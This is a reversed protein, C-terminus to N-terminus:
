LCTEQGDLWSNFLISCGLMDLSWPRTRWRWRGHHRVGPVPRPETQLWLFRPPKNADSVLWLYGFIWRPIDTLTWYTYLPIPHYRYSNRPQKLEPSKLKWGDKMFDSTGSSRNGHFPFGLLFPFALTRPKEKRPWPKSTAMQQQPPFWVPCPPWWRARLGQNECTNTQPKFGRFFIFTLQSSQEFYLSFYFMNWLVWWNKNAEIYGVKVGWAAAHKEGALAKSVDNRLSPHAPFITALHWTTFSRISMLSMALAHYLETHGCCFHHKQFSYNVMELLLLLLACDGSVDMGSEFHRTQASNQGWPDRWKMSGWTLTMRSFRCVQCPGLQVFRLQCGGSGYPKELHFDVFWGFPTVELPSALSRHFKQGHKNVVKLGEFFDCNQKFNSNWM